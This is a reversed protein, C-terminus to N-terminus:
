FWVGSKASHKREGSEYFVPPLERPPSDESIVSIYKNVTISHDLPGGEGGIKGGPTSRGSRPTASTLALRPIGRGRLLRADDELYVDFHEIETFTGARGLGHGNMQMQSVGSELQYEEDMQSFGKDTKYRTSARRAMSQVTHDKYDYSYATNAPNPQPFFRYQLSRIAPLCAFVIGTHVEIVSWYGVPTNDWTMNSSSAFQAM